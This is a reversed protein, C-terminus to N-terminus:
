MLIQEKSQLINILMLIKLKGFVLLRRTNSIADSRFIQNFNPVSIEDQPKTLTETFILIDASLYWDDNTVNIIKKKLSCINLYVIKFGSVSELRYTESIKKTSRLRNLEELVADYKENFKPQKFNGM